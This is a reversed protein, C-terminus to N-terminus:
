ARLLHHDHNRENGSAAGHWRLWRQYLQMALPTFDTWGISLGMLVEVFHPNLVHSRGDSQHCIAEPLSPSGHRNPM